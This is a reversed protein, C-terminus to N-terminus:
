RCNSMERRSSPTRRLGKRVGLEVDQIQKAGGRRMPALRLRQNVPAIASTTRPSIAASTIVTAQPRAAGAVTAVTGTV